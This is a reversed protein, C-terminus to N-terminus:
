VYDEPTIATGAFAEFTMDRVSLNLAKCAAQFLEAYSPPIADDMSFGLAGALARISEGPGELEMFWGIPTEDIVAEVDHWTYVERYKEYRWVVEYGLAELIGRMNEGDTVETEREVRISVNEETRYGPTKHTLIHRAGDAGEVRRLRLVIGRATLTRNADDFRLDDEYNRGRFAAGRSLLAARVAAPDTLAFKTEIEEHAAM